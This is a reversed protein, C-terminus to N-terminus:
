RKFQQLTKRFPAVFGALKLLKPISIGPSTARLDPINPSSKARREPIIDTGYTSDFV